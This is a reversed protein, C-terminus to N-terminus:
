INASVWCIVYQNNKIKLISSLKIRDICKTLQKSMCQQRYKM